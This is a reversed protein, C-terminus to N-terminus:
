TSTDEEIYPYTQTPIEIKIGGFLNMGLVSFIFLMLFIIATINILSPLLYYITDILIRLSKSSRILKVVRGLRLARAIIPLAAIERSSTLIKSILIDTLVLISFDFKNWSDKFYYMRLAIIKTLAEVHFVVIFVNNVINLANLEHDPIGRYIFGMAVFNVFIFFIIM